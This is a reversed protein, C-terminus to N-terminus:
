VCGQSVVGSEEILIRSKSFHGVLEPVLELGFTLLQVEQLFFRFIHEPFGGILSFIQLKLEGGFLIGM